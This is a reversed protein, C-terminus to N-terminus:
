KRYCWDGVHEVDLRTLAEYDTYVNCCHGYLYHRFHKVAWVVTLAELETVGYNRESPELTQSANAITRVSGDEQKQTLM